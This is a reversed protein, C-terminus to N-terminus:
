LESRAVLGKHSVERSDSAPARAVAATEASAVIEGGEAIAGIRAATHIGIGKYGGDQSMAEAEHVGIRV